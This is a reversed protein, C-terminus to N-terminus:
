MDPLSFSISRRFLRDWFMLPNPCSAVMLKALEPFAAASLRRGDCPLWRRPLIRGAFVMLTGVPLAGPSARVIQTVSTFGVAIRVRAGALASTALIGLSFSRRKM